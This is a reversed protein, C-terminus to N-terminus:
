SFEVIELTSTIGSACIGYVDGTYIPSAPMEYLAKAPLQFAHSSLSVTNQYGIFVPNSGSNYITYGKRTSNIGLLLASTATATVETLTATTSIVESSGGGSNSSIATLTLPM